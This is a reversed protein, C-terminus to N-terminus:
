IHIEMKKFKVVADNGKWFQKAKKKGFVNENAHTHKTKNNQKKILRASIENCAQQPTFCGPSYQM